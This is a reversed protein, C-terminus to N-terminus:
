RSNHHRTHRLSAELAHMLDDVPQAGPPETWDRNEIKATIVQELAESYQDHLATIDVGTLQQILTEALDLEQDTIPAPSTIDGPDRIEQPWHLTQVILIGHRPRLVALRERTRVAFKAIGYRGTRALAEVLLAYPRAAAPGDPAAHYGRDYMLPDVDTQDVFGAIEITKRTALPLRDLDEDHLVIVRGDPAQWGRAIEDETVDRAEAECVRRHRIRGGDSAHVQHLRPRPDETAASLRVPVSVLGCTIHGSWLARM